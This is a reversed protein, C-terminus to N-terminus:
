PIVPKTHALAQPPWCSWFGFERRIYIRNLLWFLSFGFWRLLPALVAEGKGAV